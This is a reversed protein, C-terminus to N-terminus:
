CFIHEQCEYCMETIFLERQEPSLNPFAKQVLEGNDWKEFKDKDVVFETEKGCFPCTFIVHAVEAEGKVPDKWTRFHVKM